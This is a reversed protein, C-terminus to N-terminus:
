DLTMGPAPAFRAALTKAETRLLEVIRPLRKAGLREAIAAVSLAAITEGRFNVVAVGVASLGSIILGQTFAYRLRRASRVMRYLGEDDITKRYIARRSADDRIIRAVQEDPM